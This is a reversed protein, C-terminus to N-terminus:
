RQWSGTFLRNNIQREIEDTFRGGTRELYRAIEREAHLRRSEYIADLVRRLAGGVLALVGRRPARPEGAAHAFEHYRPVYTM